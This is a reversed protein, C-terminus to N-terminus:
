ERKFEEENFQVQGNGPVQPPGLLSFSATSGWPGPWSLDLSERVTGQTDDYRAAGKLGYGNESFIAYSFETSTRLQLGDIGLRVFVSQGGTVRTMRQSKLPVKLGMEFGQTGFRVFGGLPIKKSEWALGGRADSHSTAEAVIVSIQFAPDNALHSFVRDSSTQPWVNGDPDFGNVPNRPGYSYPSAFQKAADPSIWMGLDPDYYRAGFYFLKMQGDMGGDEDFEKSTFKERSPSSSTLLKNMSGYSYYMTRDIEVGSENITSRTSSLHDKILFKPNGSVVRGEQGNSGSINEYALGLSTSGEYVAHGDVYYTMQPPTKSGFVQIYHGNLQTPTPNITEIVSYAGSPAIVYVTIDESLPLQPVLAASINTYSLGPGVYLDRARSIGFGVLLAALLRALHTVSSPKKKM